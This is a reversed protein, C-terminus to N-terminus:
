SADRHRGLSCFEIAYVKGPIAYESEEISFEIDTVKGYATLHFTIYQTTQGSIMKYYWIWDVNADKWEGNAYM